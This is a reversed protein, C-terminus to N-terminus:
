VVVDCLVVTLIERLLLLNTEKLLFYNIICLVYILVVRIERVGGGLM